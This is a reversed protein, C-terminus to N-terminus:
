NNIIMKEHIIKKVETIIEVVLNDIKYVHNLKIDNNCILFYLDEMLKVKYMFKNQDFKDYAYISIQVVKIYSVFM